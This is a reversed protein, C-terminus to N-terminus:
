APWETSLADMDAMVARREAADAPDAALRGVEEALAPQRGLPRGPGTRTTPDAESGAPRRQDM